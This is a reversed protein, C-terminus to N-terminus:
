GVTFLTLNQPSFITFLHYILSVYANIFIFEKVEEASQCLNCTISCVRFMCPPALYEQSNRCFIDELIEGRKTGRKQNAKWVWIEIKENVCLFYLLCQIERNSNQMASRQFTAESYSTITIDFVLSHKMPVDSCQSSLQFYSM